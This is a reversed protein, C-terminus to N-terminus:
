LDSGFASRWQTTSAHARAPASPAELQAMERIQEVVQDAAIPKAFFRVGDPLDDPAFKGSTMAVAILPWRELVQLALSVGDIAGPLAIDTFLVQVFAANSELICIAWEADDAEIVVLGAGDFREVILARVLPDDEVVLVVPRDHMAELHGMM